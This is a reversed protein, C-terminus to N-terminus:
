RNLIYHFVIYLIVTSGVLIHETLAYYIPRCMLDIFCALFGVILLQELAWLTIFLTCASKIYFSFLSVLDNLVALSCLIIVGIYLNEDEYDLADSTALLV